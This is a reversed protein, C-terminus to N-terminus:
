TLLVCESLVKESVEHRREIAQEKGSYEVTELWPESKKMLKALGLNRFYMMKVVNGQNVTYNGKTGKINSSQENIGQKIGM